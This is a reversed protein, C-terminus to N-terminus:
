QHLRSIFDEVRDVAACDPVPYITQYDCKGNESCGNCINEIIFDRDLIVRRTM